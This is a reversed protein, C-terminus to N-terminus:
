LYSSVFYLLRRKHRILLRKRYICIKTFNKLIQLTIVDHRDLKNFFKEYKQEKLLLKNQSNTCFQSALNENQIVYEKLFCSIITSSIGANRFQLLILFICFWDCSLNLTYIEALVVELLSFLVFIIQYVYCSCATVCIIFKIISESVLNNARM